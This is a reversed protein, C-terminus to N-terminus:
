QLSFRKPGRKADMRVLVGKGIDLQVPRSIPVLSSAFSERRPEARSVLGQAGTM